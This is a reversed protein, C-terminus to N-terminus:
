PDSSCGIPVSQTVCYNPAYCLNKIDVPCWPERDPTQHDLSSAHWRLQQHTNGYRPTFLDLRWLNDVGWNRESNPWYSRPHCRGSKQRWLVSRYRKPLRTSLNLLWRWRFGESAGEFYVVAHIGCFPQRADPNPWDSVWISVAPSIPILGVEYLHYCYRLQWGIRGNILSWKQGVPHIKWIITPQESHTTPLVYSGIPYPIRCV